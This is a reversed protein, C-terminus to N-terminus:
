PIGLGEEGDESCFIELAVSLASPLTPSFSYSLLSVLSMMSKYVCLEDPFLDKLNGPIENSHNSNGGTMKMEKGSGTSAPVLPERVIGEVPGTPDLHKHANAGAHAHM